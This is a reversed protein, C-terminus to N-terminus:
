NKLPVILDGDAAACEISIPTWGRRVVMHDNNHCFEIRQAGAYRKRVFAEISEPMSLQYKMQAINDPPHDDNHIHSFFAGLLMLFPNRVQIDTPRYQNSSLWAQADNRTKSPKFQPDSQAFVSALLEILWQNCNQYVQGFAYANASYKLGLFNLTLANDLAAAELQPTVEDPLLVLSVFGLDPSNTGMVFGAMGQDFIKPTKDECAYYLQRVSWPGNASSQVSIGAHSYRLDFRSLDLGSRSILAVSRGSSTLQSKILESFRLLKDQQAITLPNSTDCYRLSEARVAHAAGFCTLFVFARVLPWANLSRSWCGLAM